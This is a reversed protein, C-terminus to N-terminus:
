CIMLTPRLEVVRDQQRTERASQRASSLTYRAPLPRSVKRLHPTYKSSVWSLHFLEHFQVGTKLTSYSCDECKIVESAFFKSLNKHPLKMKM